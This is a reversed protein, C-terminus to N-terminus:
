PAPGRPAEAVLVAGVLAQVRDRDDALTRLPGDVLLAALGHATSWAGIATPAQRDPDPEVERVVRVLQRFGVLDEPLGEDAMDDFPSGMEPRFALRFRE